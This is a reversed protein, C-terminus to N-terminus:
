KYFLKMYQHCQKKTVKLAKIKIDQNFQSKDFDVPLAEPMEIPQKSAVAAATADTGMTAITLQRSIARLQSTPKIPSIIPFVVRSNYRYSQSAFALITIRQSHTRLKFFARM